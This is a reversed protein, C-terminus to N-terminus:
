RTSDFFRSCEGNTGSPKADRAAQLDIIRITPNSFGYSMFRPQIECYPLGFLQQYIAWIKQAYPQAGYGVGEAFREYMFSSAVLYRINPNLSRGALQALSDVHFGFSTGYRETVVESDKDVLLSEAALRTDRKLEAVLGIGTIATPVLALALVATIGVRAAEAPWPARSSVWSAIADVTIGGFYVAPLVLPLAYRVMDTGSKLPSVEILAYYSGAYIVLLRDVAAARRWGIVTLVLGIGGFILLAGGLGPWISHTLHYGIPFVMGDWNGVVGHRFERSLGAWAQEADLLMRFNCLLVVAAATAIGLGVAKLLQLRAAGREMAASAVLVPVLFLGVAKSSIALGLSFGLLLINSWDHAKCLRQYSLVTLACFAFLWIDEKLYHAHVALLPTALGALCLVTATMEGVRRAALLFLAAVGMAGLFASLQRGVEVIAQPDTIRLLSTALRTAEMMLLPHSYQYHGMMLARVKLVEDSNLGLQFTGNFSFLMLALVFLALTLASRRLRENQFASHM